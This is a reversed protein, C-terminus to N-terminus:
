LSAYMDYCSMIHEGDEYISLARAFHHVARLHSNSKQHIIGITKFVNARDVDPLDLFSRGM